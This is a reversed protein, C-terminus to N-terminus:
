RPCPPLNAMISRSASILNPSPWFKPLLRQLADVDSPCYDLIQQQEEPTFPWGQMVRKQMADKQKAGIADLGYYRLAGLLGKGDPTLPRQYFQSIGSQSRARTGAPALRAVSPLCMRRQSRFQCVACADTRYPPARGLSTAGCGSRGGPACNTRRWASSTPTNVRSRSSNSTTCGSKM